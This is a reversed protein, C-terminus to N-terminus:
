MRTITAQRKLKALYADAARNEKIRRLTREIKSRVNRYAMQSSPIRDVMKILHYGLRTEVIDSVQGPKLSFAADAFPKLMQDRQLYGLDGGRTRRNDESYDLALAAFNGGQKIKDQIKQIRLLAEGRDAADGKDDFAVMIQRVRVQERRHFYEPHDRYFAQMEAESVKVQRIVDRRLLRRIILGKRIRNKLAEESLHTSNLYDNYGISKSKLEDKLDSIARNVWPSQIQINKQQAQQYLLERKILNDLLQRKLRALRRPSLATNRLRMEADLLSMEQALDQRTIQTGNVVALVDDNAAAVSSRATCLCATTLALSFWLIFPTSRMLKKKKGTRRQLLAQGQSDPPM